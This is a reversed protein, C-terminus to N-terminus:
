KIGTKALKKMWKFLMKPWFRMIYIGLVEKKGIYLLQAKPFQSSLDIYQKLNPIIWYTTIDHQKLSQAVKVFVDTKYYNAIFCINKM